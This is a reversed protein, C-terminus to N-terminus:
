SREVLAVPDGPIAAVVLRGLETREDGLSHGVDDLPEFELAAEAFAPVPERQLRAPQFELIEGLRNDRAGGDVIRVSRDRPHLRQEGVGVRKPEHADFQRKELRTLRQEPLAEGLPHRHRDDVRGVDSAVNALAIGFERAAREFTAVQLHQNVVAKRRVSEQQEVPPDSETRVDGIGAGNPGQDVGVRPRSAGPRLPGELSM